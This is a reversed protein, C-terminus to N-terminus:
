LYYSHIQEIWHSPVKVCLINKNRLSDRLRLRNECTGKKCEYRRAIQDSFESRRANTAFQKSRLKNDGFQGSDYRRGHWYM